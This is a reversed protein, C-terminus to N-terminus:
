SICNSAKTKKFCSSGSPINVASLETSDCHVTMARSSIRSSWFLVKLWDLTHSADTSLQVTGSLNMCNRSITKDKPDTEDDARQSYKTTLIHFKLKM